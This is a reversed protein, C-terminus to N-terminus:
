RAAAVASPVQQQYLRFGEAEAQFGLATYLRHAGDGVHRKHSLLQIKNCGAAATDVLIRQMLTTAIGRRRHSVNVVVAEIFASPRCEYTLNPLLLLTATGVAVGDMEALYITLGARDMMLKWTETQLPTASDPSTGGPDRHAHVALVAILDGNVATRITVDQHGVRPM